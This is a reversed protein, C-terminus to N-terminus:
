AVGQHDALPPAAPAFIEGAPVEAPRPQAGPRDGGEAPHLTHGRRVVRVEAVDPEAALMEEISYYAKAKYRRALENAKEPIIDCVAALFGHRSIQEAHRQAIRGCGIIAFSPKM